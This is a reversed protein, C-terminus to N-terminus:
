LRNKFSRVFSVQAVPVMKGVQPAKLFAVEIGRSNSSLAVDVLGMTLLEAPTLVKILM